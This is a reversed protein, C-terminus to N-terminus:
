PRRQGVRASANDSAAPLRASSSRSPQIACQHNWQSAEKGRTWEFDWTKRAVPKWNGDRGDSEPDTGTSDTGATPGM